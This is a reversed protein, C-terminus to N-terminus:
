EFTTYDQIYSSAAFVRHLILNDRFKMQREVSSQEVSISLYSFLVPSTLGHFRRCVLRLSQLVNRCERWASEHGQKWDGLTQLDKLQPETFHGFIQELLETPMGDLQQCFNM